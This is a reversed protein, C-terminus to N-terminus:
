DIGIAIWVRQSVILTPTAFGTAHARILGFEGCGPVSPEFGAEEVPSDAFRRVRALHPDSWLVDAGHGM